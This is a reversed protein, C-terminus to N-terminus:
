VPSSLRRRRRALGLLGAGLGLLALSTPEPLHVVSVVVDTHGGISGTNTADPPGPAVYTSLTTTYLNDGLRVTFSTQGLFTNKINASGADLTGNFEGHFTLTTGQGSADDRLFMTLTYQKNTFVAHHQPTANSYTQLNTAVIDTNGIAEKLDENTLTVKGLSSNDALVEGPSNSWSYSWHIVDARARPTLTLALALVAGCLAASNSRM